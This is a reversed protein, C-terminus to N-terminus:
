QWNRVPQSQKTTYVCKVYLGKDSEKWFYRAVCLKEADNIIKSLEVSKYRYKNNRQITPNVIKSVNVHLRRKSAVFHGTNASFQLHWSLKLKTYIDAVFVISEIVALLKSFLGAQPIFVTFYLKTEYWTIYKEPGCVYNASPLTKLRTQRNLPPGRTISRM